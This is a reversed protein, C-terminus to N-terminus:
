IWGGHLGKGVSSLDRMGTRKLVGSKIDPYEDLIHLKLPNKKFYNDLVNDTLVTAVLQSAIKSRDPTDKFHRKIIEGDRRNDEVQVGGEELIVLANRVNWPQAIFYDTSLEEAEMPIGELSGIDGSIWIRGKVTSPFGKLDKLTMSFLM